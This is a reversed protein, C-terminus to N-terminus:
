NKIEIIIVDELLVDLLYGICEGKLVVRDGDTLSHNTLENSDELTCKLLGFGNTELEVVPKAEASQHIATVIGEVQVVKNLYLTNAKNEDTEFANYLAEATLSAEVTRSKMKPGTSLMKDYVIYAAVFAMVVAIIILRKKKM